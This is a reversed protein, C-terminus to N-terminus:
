FVTLSNNIADVQENIKKTHNKISAVLKNVAKVRNVQEEKSVNPIKLNFLDTASFNDRVSGSALVQIQYKMFPTKLLQVLYEINIDLDRLVIYAPSTILNNEDSDVYIVSGTNIRYPNFVIDDKYLKQPLGSKTALIDDVTKEEVETITGELTKIVSVYKYIKEIDDNLEKETLKVKQTNSETIPLPVFTSLIEKTEENFFYFTPDLRKPVSKFDIKLFKVMSKKWTESKDDAGFELNAYEVPDAIM